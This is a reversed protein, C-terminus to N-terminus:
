RISFAANIAAATIQDLALEARLKAQEFTMAVGSKEVTGLAACWGHGLGTQDREFAWAVPTGGRKICWARDPQAVPDHIPEWTYSIV